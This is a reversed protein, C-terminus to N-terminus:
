GQKRLYLFLFVDTRRLHELKTRLMKLARYLQTEVTRVSLSLLAAIDTSKKGSFRSLLFIERCQEPLADVARNIEALVENQSERRFFDEVNNESRAGCEEMFRAFEQKVREHKLANLAAHYVARFLYASVSVQVNLSERKEWVDCCVGQVLDEAQDHDRVLSEAYVCLRTYMGRFLREFAAEDGKAIDEMIHESFDEM